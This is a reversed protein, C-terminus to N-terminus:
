GIMRFAVIRESGGSVAGVYLRLQNRWLIVDPTTVAESLLTGPRPRVIPEPSVRQWLAQQASM